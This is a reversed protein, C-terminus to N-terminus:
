HRNADLRPNANNDRNMRVTNTTENVRTVNIRTVEREEENDSPVPTSSALPNGFATSRVSSESVTRNRIQTQASTANPPPIQAVDAQPVRVELTPTQSRQIVPRPQEIGENATPTIFSQDTSQLTPKETIIHRCHFKYNLIDDDICTEGTENDFWKEIKVDNEVFTKLVIVKKRYEELESETYFLRSLVLTDEEVTSEETTEEKSSQMSLSESTAHQLSKANSLNAPKVTTNAAADNSSSPDLLGAPNGYEEMLKVVKDYEQASEYLKDLATKMDNQIDETIKGPKIKTLEWFADRELVHGTSDRIEKRNAFNVAGNDKARFEFIGIYINTQDLKFNKNSNHVFGQGMNMVYLKQYTGYSNRITKNRIFSPCFVFPCEISLTGLEFTTNPIKLLLHDNPNIKRINSLEREDGEQGFRDVAYFPKTWFWDGESFGSWHYKPMVMYGDRIRISPSFAYIESQRMSTRTEDGKKEVVLAVIDKESKNPPPFLYGVQEDQNMM